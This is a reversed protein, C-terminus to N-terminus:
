PPRVRRLRQVPPPRRGRTGTRTCSASVSPTLANIQGWHPRAGLDSLDREYSALLEEGRRSDVVMILEIMTTPQEYMMLAYANSAAVFRPAIPSTHYVGDQAWRAAAALIGDVAQM